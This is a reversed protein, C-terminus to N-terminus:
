HTSSFSYRTAIMDIAEGFDNIPNGLDVMQPSGDKDIITGYANGGPGIQYYRGSTKGYLQLQTSLNPYRERITSEVVCCEDEDVSWADTKVLESRPGIPEVQYIKYRLHSLDVGNDMLTQPINAVDHINPRAIVTRVTLEIDPYDNEVMKLGNIVRQFNNIKGPRMIKNVDPTSGDLPLGLDDVWPLVLQHKKALLIANTSLTIRMSLDEKAYRLVDPLSPDMLPEGGTFVVGSTGIGKFNRLLNKWANGDHITGVTHEEGWCFPCDLQCKGTMSIDVTKPYNVIALREPGREM